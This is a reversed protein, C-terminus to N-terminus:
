SLLCTSDKFVYFTTPHSRPQSRHQVDAIFQGLFSQPTGDHSMWTHAILQLAGWKLNSRQSFFKQYRSLTVTSVQSRPDFRSQWRSWIMRWPWSCLCPSPLRATQLKIQWCPAKEPSQWLQLVIQSSHPSPHSRFQGPLVYLTSNQQRRPYRHSQDFSPSYSPCSWPYLPFM